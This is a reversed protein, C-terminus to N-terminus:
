VSSDSTRTRVPPTPCGPSLGGVPVAHLPETSFEVQEQEQLEQQQQQEEEEEETM